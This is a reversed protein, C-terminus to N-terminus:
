DKKCRVSRYTDKGVASEFVSASSNTMGKIFAYTGDSETATWFYAYTRIDGAVLTETLMGAPRATFGSANTADNNPNKWYTTGEEKLESGATSSGGLSTVLETWEANSPVHWGAPCIGQVGSPNLDSSSAGSMM